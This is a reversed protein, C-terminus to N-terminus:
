TRKFDPCRGGTLHYVQRMTEESGVVDMLLEDIGADKLALATKQDVLGIHISIKLRTYQKIWQISELFRKCEV